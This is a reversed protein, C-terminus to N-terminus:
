MAAFSRRHRDPPLALSLHPHSECRQNRGIQVALVFPRLQAGHQREGPTAQEFVLHAARDAGSRLMGHHQDFPHRRRQGLRDLPQTAIADRDLDRAIGGIGGVTEM